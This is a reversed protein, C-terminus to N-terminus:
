YENGWGDRGTGAPEAPDPPERTDGPNETLLGCGRPHVLCAGNQYGPHGAEPIDGGKGQTKGILEDTKKGDPDFAIQFASFLGGAFDPM